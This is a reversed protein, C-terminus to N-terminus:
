IKRSEESKSKCNTYIASLMRSQQHKIWKFIQVKTINPVVARLALLRDNLKKRRCREAAINSNDDCTMSKEAGGNALNLHNTNCISIDDDLEWSALEDNQIYKNIDWYLQYEESFTDM